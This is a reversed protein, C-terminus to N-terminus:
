LLCRRRWKCLGVGCFKPLTSRCHFKYESPISPNENLDIPGLSPQKNPTHSIRKFEKTTCVFEVAREILPTLRLELDGWLEMPRIQIKEQWVIDGADWDDALDQATVGSHTDGSAIAWRNPTGGARQPLLGAHINFAPALSTIKKPILRHFSCCLILDPKVNLDKMQKSPIWEGLTSPHPLVDFPDHFPSVLSTVRYKLRRKPARTVILVDDFRKATQVATSGHGRNAFILIVPLVWLLDVENKARVIDQIPLM